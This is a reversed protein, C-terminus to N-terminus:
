ADPKGQVDSISCLCCQGNRRLERKDRKLAATETRREQQASPMWAGKQGNMTPNERNRNGVSHM